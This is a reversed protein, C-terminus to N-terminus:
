MVIVQCQLMSSQPILIAALMKTHDHSYKVVTDIIVKLLYPSLSMESAWILSVLFFGALYLKRRRLYRWIFPMLNSPLEDIEQGHKM